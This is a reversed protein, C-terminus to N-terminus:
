KQFIVDSQETTLERTRILIYDYSWNEMDGESGSKAYAAIKVWGLECMVFRDYDSFNRTDQKCNGLYYDLFEEYLEKYYGDHLLYGELLDMHRYPACEFLTGSPTIYGCPHVGYRHGALNSEKLDKAFNEYTDQHLIM